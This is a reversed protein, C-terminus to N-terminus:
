IQKEFDTKYKARVISPTTILKVLALCNLMFKSM